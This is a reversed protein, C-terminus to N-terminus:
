RLFYLEDNINKRNRSITWGLVDAISKPRLVFSGSDKNWEVQGDFKEVASKNIELYGDKEAFLFNLSISSNVRPLEINLGKGTIVEILMKYVDIKLFSLLRDIKCDLLVGCEVVYFENEMKLIDVSFLSNNIGLAKLATIALERLQHVSDEQNSSHSPFTTSFGSMIFNQNEGLNTKKCVSLISPKNNAIIGDVTFEEGELFIEVIVKSDQSIASVKKFESQITEISGALVIGSSGSAGLSPKMIVLKQNIETFFDIAEDLDSVVRAEATPVGYALFSKKMLSKDISLSASEKSYSLTRFNESVRATNVIAQASSSYTMVGCILYERTLDNLKLSISEFDHTSIKFFLSSENRVSCNEDRDFVATKYGLSNSAQIFKLHDSSGGLFIILKPKKSL